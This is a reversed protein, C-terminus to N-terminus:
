KNEGDEELETEKNWARGFLENGGPSLELVCNTNMTEQTETDYKDLRDFAIFVQKGSAKQEDYAKIIEAFVKKEIHLLMQMDHIIFPLPSLDMNALDFTIVGRYQAGTGGDNPTNFTYRNLKEMRLVPSMHQEDRLLHVSIERMKQNVMTEISLLQNRIVKDRTEAYEAVLDNLENMRDYNKNADILNNLETTIKAYEKLIAESVNPIKKIEEVEKLIRAIENGLMVYATALDKETEKFEDGLVKALQKHFSEISEITQFDVGPFFRQLDSYTKKISKKGETMERRIANLQIQVRARERRYKLLQDDLESLHRAQFSDLDLLGKNSQEALEQEQTKLANIRKENDEYETKNKAARIHKYDSSKKFADREEEAAKAQKIQAEVPAYKGYLQMYRKIAYETKEDKAAKLPREEDLTDRKLVRIFRSVVGRWTLDKEVQTGYKEALFACYQDLTMENDESLPEYNEDCCLVHKYDINSRSFHYLQGDFEFTFNIIHEGVNEQVDLCKNVYDKGGFVFGLIMLFTSKGVSNSGNDDGIVTNLGAHFHIPQRIEGHKIFKDCQIEILM